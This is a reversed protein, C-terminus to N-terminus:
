MACDVYAPRTPLAQRGAEIRGALQAQRRNGAIAAVIAGAAAIQRTLIADARPRLDLPLPGLGEPPTWPDVVPADRLRHEETLMAEIQAVDAELADLAAVWAGHWEGSVPSM